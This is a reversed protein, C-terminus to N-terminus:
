YASVTGSAAPTPLKNTLDRSLSLLLNADAPDLQEKEFVAVLAKLVPLFEKRFGEPIMSYSQLPFAGSIFSPLYDCFLQKKLEIHTKSPAVSM